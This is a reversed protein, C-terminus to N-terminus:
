LFRHIYYTGALLSLHLDLNSHLKYEFAEKKNALNITCAIKCYHFAVRISCALFIRLLGVRVSLDKDRLLLDSNM